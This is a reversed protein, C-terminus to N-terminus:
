LCSLLSCCSNRLQTHRSTGRPRSVASGSQQLFHLQLSKWALTTVTLCFSMCSIEEAKLYIHPFKEKLYLVSHLPTTPIWLLLGWCCYSLAKGLGSTYHFTTRSVLVALLLFSEAPIPPTYLVLGPFNEFFNDGSATNKSSSETFDWLSCRLCSCFKVRGYQPWFSM